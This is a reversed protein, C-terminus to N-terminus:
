AGYLEFLESRVPCNCIYGQGFYMFYMCHRRKEDNIFLGSGSIHNKGPCVKRGEDELCQFGYACRTTKKLTDKNIEFGM